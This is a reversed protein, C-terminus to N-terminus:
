SHTRRATIFGCLKESYKRIWNPCAGERGGEQLAKEVESGKEGGAM